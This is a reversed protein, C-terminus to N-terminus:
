YRENDSFDPKLQQKLRGSVAHKRAYDSPTSWGLASHPRVQNYFTRWAEIKQEADALSLFWNENLCEQRLRGNFSEVTANDTPKGPRSFDIEIQREYAWRDMVKGAFESGNDAKLIKPNGRFRAIRTLAEKVDEGKLSQGVIIGLCERTFLDTITLLRLRRGDFLADSVFDMGWIHNPFEGQSMPQRNKAAKNRRPRKLRLSLGQVRYLRYVRKHNDQWGERQLLVHERRYGYHVRVQTIERIRMSLASADRAVSKYHYSARSLGLVACAQRQSVGFRKQFDDVLQRKRPPRLGKKFLVDQLMAKDLSLDAVVRKLRQNEEELQKLRRLESPGLGGYKKRWAYFTADSIGMKHCVEPVPTGLEAQKLAFAIQEETYRSRKM